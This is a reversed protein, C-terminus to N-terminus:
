LRVIPVLLTHPNGLASNGTADGSATKYMREVLYGTEKFEISLFFSGSVNVRAADICSQNTGCATIQGTWFAQGPADAQRNLFDHYHQCVFTAPDDIPNTSPETPDDVITITAVSTGLSVGSPNSLSISFTESGEVFSDENVLVAITKSTEGAAFRLTGLAK